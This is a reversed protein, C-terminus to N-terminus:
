AEAGLDLNTIITLNPLHTAPLDKDGAVLRKLAQEKAQGVALLISAGARALLSRTLTMRTNPPKPSDSLSAVVRDAPLSLLPHGPFLSAIHGDPGMGLLVVDLGGSFDDRLSNAVRSEARAASEGDLWLPLELGPKQAHELAGSRYASGRNSDADDFDVCREDVWTLRVSSWQDALLKRVFPLAAVASGGPIALRAQESTELASQLASAVLAGARAAAASEEVFVLKAM